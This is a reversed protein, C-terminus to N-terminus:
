IEVKLIGNNWEPSIVSLPHFKKVNGENDTVICNLNRRQGGESKMMGTISIFRGSEKQYKEIPKKKFEACCKHSIKLTFSDDIQYM